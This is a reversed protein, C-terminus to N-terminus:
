EPAKESPEIPQAAVYKLFELRRNVDEETQQLLRAAVDPHATRLMRYRNEDYIYEAVPLSPDKSDIVLPNKGQARLAPNYRYLPWHGCAVAKKQCEIGKSMDIGHAICTAYAVVLSPGDYAEAELFAKVTQAPNAGFAVQAVYINGYTAMMMGLYKKPTIKGGGAFKAVAGMPTAKSMKGGTNSYVEIDLVLVNINKGSALVQDV